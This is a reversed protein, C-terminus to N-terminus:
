AVEGTNAGPVSGLLTKTYAHTPTEFVAKRNGREVIEGRLMVIVEDCLYEVVALDHSIFLYTLELDQQLQGLLALIQAQVSVDLASVAEDLVLVEPEAALARAIVVRQRQGGSLQHPYRTAMDPRLGVLQL